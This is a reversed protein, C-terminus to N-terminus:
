KKTRIKGNKTEKHELYRYGDGGAGGAVSKNNSNANNKIKKQEDEILHIIAEVAGIEYCLPNERPDAQEWHHTCLEKVNELLAEYLKEM